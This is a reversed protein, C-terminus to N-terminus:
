GSSIRRSQLGGLVRKGRRPQYPVVGVAELQNQIVYRKAVLFAKGWEVVRSYALLDWFRRGLPKGNQAGTVQQAIKGALVRLFNQFGKRTKSLSLFHLHNGNNSWEYVKVGWRKSLQPVLVKLYRSNRPMLLSWKGVALTSRLTVHMPRKTVVPRRGKRRGLSLAGGHEVSNLLGKQLQLQQRRAKM